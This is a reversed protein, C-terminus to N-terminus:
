SYSLHPQPVSYNSDELIAEVDITDFQPSLRAWSDITDSSVKWDKWNEKILQKLQEISQDIKSATDGTIIEEGCRDCQYGDVTFKYYLSGIKKKIEVKSPQLEGGCRHKM